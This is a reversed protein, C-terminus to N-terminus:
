PVTIKSENTPTQADSSVVRERVRKRATESCNKKLDIKQPYDIM